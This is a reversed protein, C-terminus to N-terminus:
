KMADFEYKTLLLNSLEYSDYIAQKDKQGLVIDDRYEKGEFRVKIEEKINDHIALIIGGDLDYTNVEWVWGGSNETKCNDSFATLLQSSYKKGAILVMVQTHFLWDDNYFNSKLWIHGSASDIVATLCKRNQWHTGWSKHFYTISNNFDDRYPIFKSHLKLLQSDVHAIRNTRYISDAHRISDTNVQVQMRSNEHPNNRVGSNCGSLIAICFYLLINKM